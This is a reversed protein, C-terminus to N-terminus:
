RKALCHLQSWLLSGVFLNKIKNEEKPTLQVSLDPPPPIIQQQSTEAKDTQVEQDSLNDLELTDVQSASHNRRHNKQYKKERELKAQFRTYYSGFGEGKFSDSM